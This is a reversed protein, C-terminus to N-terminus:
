TLYGTVRLCQTWKNNCNHFRIHGNSGKMESWYKVKLNHDATNNLPLYLPEQWAIAHIYHVMYYSSSPEEIKEKQQYIAGSKLM